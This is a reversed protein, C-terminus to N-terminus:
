CASLASEVWEPVTKTAAGYIKEQFASHVLSRELNIEVTKAGAMGALRVFDAGPYVAGSTGVAAFVDCRSLARYIQDMYLPMEGFWVIHPRLFGNKECVPCATAADFDKDWPSVGDCVDCRVKRLEGHMPMVRRSGARQHLDDINQTILLFDDGLREEMRALALHAANPQIEPQRIGRRLGNYFAYVLAPDRIFGEPTAV